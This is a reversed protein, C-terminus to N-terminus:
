EEKRETIGGELALGLLEHAFRVARKPSIREKHIAPGHWVNVEILPSGPERTAFVGHAPPALDDTM